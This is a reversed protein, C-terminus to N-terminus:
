KVVRIQLRDRVAEISWKLGKGCTDSMREFLDEDITHCRIVVHDIYMGIWVQGVGPIAVRKSTEGEVVVCEPDIAERVLRYVKKMEESPEMPM